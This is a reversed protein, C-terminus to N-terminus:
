FQGNKISKSLNKRISKWNKTFNLKKKMLFIVTYIWVNRISIFDYLHISKLFMMRWNLCFFSNTYWTNSTFYVAANFILNEKFSYIKSCLIFNATSLIKLIVASSHFYKLEFPFRSFLIFPTFNIKFLREANMYLNWCFQSMETNSNTDM